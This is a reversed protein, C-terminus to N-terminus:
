ILGEREVQTLCEWVRKELQYFRVKKACKLLFLKDKLQEMQYLSSILRFTGSADEMETPEKKLQELLGLLTNEQFRNVRLALVTYKVIEPANNLEQAARALVCYVRDLHGTINLAKKGKYIELKELASKMHNSAEWWMQHDAMWLAYWYETDPLSPVASVTKQFWYRVEEETVVVEDALIKMMQGCANEVHYIDLNAQEMGREIVEQFADIARQFQQEVMLSDGLYSLLECDHPRDILEAELLRINRGAKETEALVSLAYGTHFIAFQSSLDLLRLKRGEPLVLTEHIRNKYRLTGINRFIRDQVSTSMPQKEEDLHIWATRVIHPKEKVNYKKEIDALSKYLAQAADVSFYEDADLFAIWNGTAQEIAYNKAASFDDIWDFHFIKAGLKEAIEVTKDTSGTDVVIQESVIGKGWSLAQKINNEENKVIMCQSLRVNGKM